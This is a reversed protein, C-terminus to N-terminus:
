SPVPSTGTLGTWPLFFPCGLRDDRRRVWYSVAFMECGAYGRADALLMASRYVLSAAVSDLASFAIILGINAIHSSPAALRRPTAAMGNVQTRRPKRPRSDLPDDDGRPDATMAVQSNQHSSLVGLDQKVDLVAVLRQITM